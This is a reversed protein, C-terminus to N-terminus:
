NTEGFRVGIENITWDDTDDVETKLQFDNGAGPIEFRKRDLRDTETGYYKTTGYYATSGYVPDYSVNDLPITKTEELKHEGSFIATLTLTAALNKRYRVWGNIDHIKGEASASVLGSTRTARVAATGGDGGSKTGEMLYVNGSADGMLIYELKDIPSLVPMMLTPQFAFSHQTTIKSWPSLEAQFRELVPHHLVYMLSEGSPHFFTRSTRKNHAIEWEAVGEILDEIWFSLNNSEVDGFRETAFVSEIRGQRGYVIDNVTQAIAEEGAAASREALIDFAFDKASSGTLKYLNGGHSSTIILGFAEIIGNVRYLDPELLFFPDQENLASSPRDIVTIETYDGRKAGIILHPTNTGNDHINAFVAREKDVYCYRARFVGFAAQNEDTFAVQSFTTGDWKHVEEALNLDTIIVEDDKQWQHELRGRLKANANVTGRSTFTPGATWEYVTNGGQILTSVSGDSKLLTAAGRVEAGNPLTGLLDFPLRPRFQFNDADLTFNEGAACERPDIDEESARSHLGGGFRLKLPDRDGKITQPM